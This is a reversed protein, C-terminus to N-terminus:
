ATAREYLDSGVINKVTQAYWRGASRKTPTGLANLEDAVQCLTWGRARWERMRGITAQEEPVV